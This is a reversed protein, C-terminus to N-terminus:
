NVWWFLKEHYYVQALSSEEREKKSNVGAMNVGCCVGSSRHLWCVTTCLPVWVVNQSFFMNKGMLLEMFM